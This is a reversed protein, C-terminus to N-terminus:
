DWRTQLGVPAWATWTAQRRNAPLVETDLRRLVEGIRAKQKRLISLVVPDNHYLRSGVIARMCKM